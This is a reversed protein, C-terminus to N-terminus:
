KRTISVSKSWRISPKEVIRYAVWSGALTILIAPLIMWPTPCNLYKEQMAFFLFWGGTLGHTLYISYSIEGLSNTWKWNPVRFAFCAVTLGSILLDDWRANVSLYILVLAVVAWNVAINEKKYLSLMQIGLIFFPANSLMSYTQLTYHGALMWVLFIGLRLETHKKFLPYVLGLAVYFQVEVGLTEFVPNLWHGDSYLDVLFTANALVNIGDVSFHSRQFLFQVFLIGLIVCWYLPLIRLLRKAMYRFYDHIRYTKRDLSLLMVFGSIIFFMEVGQAGFSFGHRISANQVLHVSESSFDVFHFVLVMLAAIARLSEIYGIHGKQLNM